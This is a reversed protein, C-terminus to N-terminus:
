RIYQIIQRACAVLIPQVHNDPSWYRKKLFGKFGHLFLYASLYMLWTINSYDGRKTERISCYCQFNPWCSSRGREQCDIGHGKKKWNKNSVDMVILMLFLLIVTSFVEVLTSVGFTSWLGLIINSLFPLSRTWLYSWILTCTTQENYSTIEFSTCRIYHIAPKVFFFRPEIDICRNLRASGILTAPIIKM